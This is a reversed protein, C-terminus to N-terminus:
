KGIFFSFLPITLLRGWWNNSTMRDNNYDYNYKKSSDLSHKYVCMLSSM